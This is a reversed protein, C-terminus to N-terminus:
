AQEGRTRLREAEAASLCGPAISTRLLDERVLFDLGADLLLGHGESGTLSADLYEECFRAAGVATWAPDPDAAVIEVLRDLVLDHDTGDAWNHPRALIAPEHRREEHMVYPGVLMLQGFDWLARTLRAEGAPASSAVPAPSPSPAPAAGPLHELREPHRHAAIAANAALYDAKQPGHPTSFVPPTFFGDDPPPVDFMEWWVTLEVPPLHVALNTVGLERFARLCAAVAPRGEDVLSPSHELLVKWAGIAVWGGHQTALNNLRTVTGQHTPAGEGLPQLWRRLHTRWDDIPGPEGAAEWGLFRYRGYRELLGVDDTPLVPGDPGTVPLGRRRRLLRTLGATDDPTMVEAAEYVIRAMEEFVEGSRPHIRGRPSELFTTARDVLQRCDIGSDPDDEDDTVAASCWELLVAVAKDAPGNAIASTVVGWRSLAQGSPGAGPVEAPQPERRRFISM